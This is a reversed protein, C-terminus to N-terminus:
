LAVCWAGISDGLSAPLYFFAAILMFFRLWAIIWFGRFMYTLLLYRVMEM